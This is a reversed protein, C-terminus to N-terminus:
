RCQPEPLRGKMIAMLRKAALQALTHGSKNSQERSKM